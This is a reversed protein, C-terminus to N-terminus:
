VLVGPQDWARSPKAQCTSPRHVQMLLQSRSWVSAPPKVDGESCMMQNGHHKCSACKWLKWVELTKWSGPHSWIIQLLIHVVSLVVGSCFQTRSEDTQGSIALHLHLMGHIWLLKDITPEREGVWPCCFLKSQELDGQGAAVLGLLRLDDGFPRFTFVCLHNLNTCLSVQGM